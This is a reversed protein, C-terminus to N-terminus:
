TYGNQSNELRVSIIQKEATKQYAGKLIQFIEHKRTKNEFKWFNEMINCSNVSTKMLNESNQALDLLYLCNWANGGQVTTM